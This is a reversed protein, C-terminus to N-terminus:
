FEIRLSILFLTQTKKQALVNYWTWLNILFYFYIVVNNGHGDVEFRRIKFWFHKKRSNVLLGFNWSLRIIEQLFFSILFYSCHEILRFLEILGGIEFLGILGSEKLYFSSFKVKKRHSLLSNSIGFKQRLVVLLNKTIVFNM